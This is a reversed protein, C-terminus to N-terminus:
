DTKRHKQESIRHDNIHFLSENKLKERYSNVSVLWIAYVVQKGVVLTFFVLFAFKDLAYSITEGLIASFAGLLAHYILMLTIIVISGLAYKDLSTLYSVTPLLRTVVAKFSVSSLLMTATSPLRSQPLKYDIVFPGLAAFTILVIPLLANWYFYGAQRFAQCQIKIAPHEYKGFSYEREIIEKNTRILDHLVWMSNDLNNSLKIKTIEPQMIIFNVRKASKKSTIILSLDQIDLPFHELELKEHFLGKLKRIESVMIGNEEDNVIKYTAEEKIENIANEINLEPKFSINKIDDNLSKINSDVWKTEIISEAQFRQNITDIDLIKTFSARIYVDTQKIHSNLHDEM